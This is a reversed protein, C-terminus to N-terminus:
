NKKDGTAKNPASTSPGSNGAITKVDVGIDTVVSLLKSINDTGDGLAPTQKQEPAFMSAPYPVTSTEAVATVGPTPATSGVRANNDSLIKVIDSKKKDIISIADELKKDDILSLVMIGSSFKSLKDISDMDVNELATSLENISKCLMRISDTTSTGMGSIKLLAEGLANLGDAMQAGQPLSESLRKMSDSFTDFLGGKAYMDKNKLLTEIKKSFKIMAEAAIDLSNFNKADKLANISNAVATMSKDVSTSWTDPPASWTKVNAFKNSIHSMLGAAMALIFFDDNDLEKLEKISDVIADISKKISDGWDPPPAVWKDVDALNESAEIMSDIVKNLVRVDGKGLDNKEIDILYKVFTGVAKGVNDGWAGMNKGSDWIKGGTLFDSIALKWATSIMADITKRLIRLDGRGIDNKEIDILFGVFKQIANGVGNVWKPDPFKTAKSWDYDNIEEAAAVLAKALKKMSTPLDDSFFGAAQEFESLPKAFANIAAGVGTAWAPDPYKTIDAWNYNSLETAATKIAIALNKIKKEYSEDFIGQDLDQLSELGEAFVKIALGVGRSWEESPYNKVDTWGFNGLEVAASKIAKSINVIKDNYGERGFLGSIFSETDELASIGEAFAKIALSVGTAWKETPGGVYNGQALILSASAIAGSIALLDLIGFILFAPPILGFMLVMGAVSKMINTTANAWDETPGNKYDGKALIKSVVFITGAILLTSITGMIMFPLLLGLGLSLKAFRVLTSTTGKAWEDSPGKDYKGKSLIFGVGVISGAITFLGLACRVLLANPILATEIMLLGFTKMLLSVSEAWVQTPGNKYDGQSIIAAVGVVAGAIIGMSIAGLIVFPLLPGVIIMALGFTTLTLGVGMAWDFSPYKEYKGAGLIYSVAVIVGSIALVALAGIAMAGAAIGGSELILAGLLMMGGGFAILSLGVGMAWGLSPYDEYRGMSLIWSTAAIVFSIGIIALSATLFQAPSLGIKNIVWATGAFATVSLGVGIAWHWDPYNDYKGFSLLWSSIFIGGAMIVVNEMAKITDEVKMSKLIYVAPVLALVSIGIAISTMLIGISQRFGFIHMASFIWSAAVLGVALSVIILAAKGIDKPDLNKLHEIAPKMLYVLVGITVAIFISSVMQMFSLPHIGRLIQSSLVLGLALAPLMLPLLFFKGIDKPGIKAKEIAQSMLYLSVGMAGAVFVTTIMQMIGLPTIRSLIISSLALGLAIVPLIFPIALFKPYDEPKIKSKEIAKSMLYLSTGMAAAVFVISMAKGFSLTASLALALSSLALSLSMIVMLKGTKIMEEPSMKKTKEAVLAFAGSIFIIALGIGVVSLFDVHGIIKFTLGIALVGAAILTVVKVADLIKKKNDVEAISGFVGSEKAKRSEKIEQLIKDQKSDITNVKKVVAEINKVIDNLKDEVSGMNKLMSNVPDANKKKEENLLDVIFQLADKTSGLAKTFEELRTVFKPDVAPM